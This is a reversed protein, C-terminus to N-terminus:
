SDMSEAPGDSNTIGHSSTWRLIRPTPAGIRISVPMLFPSREGRPHPQSLGLMCSLGATPCLHELPEHTLLLLIQWQVSLKSFRTSLNATPQHPQGAQIGDPFPPAHTIPM